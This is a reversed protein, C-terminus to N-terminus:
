ITSCKAIPQNTEQLTTLKAEVNNKYEQKDIKNWKIRKTHNVGPHKPKVRWIVHSDCWYQTM